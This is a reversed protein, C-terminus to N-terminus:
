NEDSKSILVVAMAAIGNNSGISGLKDTTTAKVSIDDLPIEFIDSINKRM